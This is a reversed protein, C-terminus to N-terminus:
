SCTVLFLITHDLPTNRQLTAMINDQLAFAVKSGLLDTEEKAWVALPRIM